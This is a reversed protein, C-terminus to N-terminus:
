NRRSVSVLQMILRSHNVNLYELRVFGLSHYYYSKLSSNYKRGEVEFTGTSSVVKCNIKGYPTDIIEDAERTYEFNIIVLNEGHQPIWRADLYFGGTELQWSWTRKKEDLQIFPYPSLQLLKFTHTRPPHLWINYQNEVVGTWEDAFVLSSNKSKIADYITDSTKGFSNIFYYSIVTQRYGSQDKIVGRYDDVDLRVKDIVNVSTSDYAILELENGRKNPDRRFLFKYKENQESLYYYDFTFSSKL